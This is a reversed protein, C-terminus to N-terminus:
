NTVKIEKKEKDSHIHYFGMYIGILPKKDVLEIFDYVSFSGEYTHVSDSLIDGYGYLYNATGITTKMSFLERGRRREGINIKSSYVLMHVATEQFPNIFFRRTTIKIRSYINRVGHELLKYALAEGPRM